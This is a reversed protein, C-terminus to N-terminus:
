QFRKLVFAKKKKKKKRTQENKDLIILREEAGHQSPEELVREAVWPELALILLWNPWAPIRRICYPLKCLGLCLFLKNCDLSYCILSVIFTNVLLFPFIFQPGSQKLERRKGWPLFCLTLPFTWILALPSSLLLLLLLPLLRLLLITM